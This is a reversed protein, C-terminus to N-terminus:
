RFSSGYLGGRTDPVFFTEADEVDWAELAELFEKKKTRCNEVIATPQGTSLEDALAWVVGLFWEAPFYVAETLNTGLPVQTQLVLHLSGLAANADPTPWLNVNLTLRQKDVFYSTPQGPASNNVPLISWEQWSAPTLPVRSNYQDLYYAEVVRLPKTMVVTGAPGLTYLSTGAVLAVATDVNTFLKLGKTQLFNVLHNLRNYGLAFQESNPTGSTALLGANVFALVIADSASGFNAPAPM